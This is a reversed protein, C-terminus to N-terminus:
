SVQGTALAFARQSLTNARDRERQALQPRGFTDHLAAHALAVTTLSALTAIDRRQRETILLPHDM